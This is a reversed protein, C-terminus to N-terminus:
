VSKSRETSLDIGAEAMVRKVYTNIDKSAIRANEAKFKDEYLRNLFAEAM